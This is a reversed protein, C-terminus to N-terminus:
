VSPPAAPARAPFLYYIAVVGCLALSTPASVFALGIATAYVFLGKMNRGILYSVQQQDVWGEFLDRRACWLYSAFFAVGMAFLTAAYLAAATREDAGPNFHTALLTTPFPTLTVLMLLVLNIVMLTRDARAINRFQAHHNLWVIGITMFSVVYTAYSPWLAGLEHALHGPPTHGKVALDLVLLTAAVAFVGDSFAELRDTTPDDPGQM